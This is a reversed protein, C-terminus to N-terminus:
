GLVFGANEGTRVGQIRDVPLADRNPYGVIDEHTIARPGYHCHRAMVRAVKFEGCFKVQRNNLNNLRRLPLIPMTEDSVTNSDVGGALLDRQVSQNGAFCLCFDSGPKFAFTKAFFCNIVFEAVPEEAALSVPTLWEWNNPFARRLSFPIM